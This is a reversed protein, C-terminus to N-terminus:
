LPSQFFRKEDDDDATPDREVKEQKHHRWLLSRTMLTIPALRVHGGDWDRYLVNMMFRSSASIGLNVCPETM